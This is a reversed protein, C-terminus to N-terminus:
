GGPAEPWAMGEGPSHGDVKGCRYCMSVRTGAHKVGQWDHFGLKCLLSNPKRGAVREDM